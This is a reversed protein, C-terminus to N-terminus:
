GVKTLKSFDVHDIDKALECDQHGSLPWQPRLTSALYITLNRGEVKAKTSCTPCQWTGNNNAM